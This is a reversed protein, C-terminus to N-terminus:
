CVHLSCLKILNTSISTACDMSETLRDTAILMDIFSEFLLNVNTSSQVFQTVAASAQLASIRVEDEACATAVGAQGFAEL